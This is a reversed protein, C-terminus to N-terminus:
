KENEIRWKEMREALLKDANNNIIIENVYYDLENETIGMLYIFDDLSARWMYDQFDKITMENELKLGSFDDIFYQISDEETLEDINKEYKGYNKILDQEIEEFPSDVGDHEDLYIEAEMMNDPLYIARNGGFCSIIQFMYIRWQDRILKDMLFWGRFRYPPQWFYIKDKTFELEFNRFGRFSLCQYNTCDEEDYDNIINYKWNWDEDEIKKYIGTHQNKLAVEPARGDSNDWFNMIVKILDLNVLEISNLKERIEEAVESIDRGSFKVKHNGYQCLDVGM